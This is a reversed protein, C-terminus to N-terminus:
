PIYSASEDAIDDHRYRLLAGVGGLEQFADHQEVVEVDAGTISALRVLNNRTDTDVPADQALLLMDVQGYELATQTEELGVVGLGSAQAQQLMQDAASREKVNEAEALVPAIAQEVETRPVRIDLRLPEKQTIAAVRPSLAARLLPVAVPDGALIVHAAGESDVLREIEAAAESAFEARHREIHRQYRTQNLSIVSKRKSYHIPDDDLGSVEELFGARTVFLRATNTDVAAVVATEQEDLFRALQFLDPLPAFTVQNEFAVGTEIAAFLNRASCAFLALGQAVAPLHEDLYREVRARDARFSDLAPGRPLLTKEIERLRDKLVVQGSRLAPREGTAQPRMDLYVSLIPVDGPELDALRRLVARMTPEM